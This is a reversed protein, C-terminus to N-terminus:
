FIRQTYTANAVLRHQRLPDGQHWVYDAAFEIRGAAQDVLCRGYGVSITAETAAPQSLSIADGKLTGSYQPRRIVEASVFVRDGAAM